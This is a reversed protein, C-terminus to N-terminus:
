CGPLAEEKMDAIIKELQKRKEARLDLINRPMPQLSGHLEVLHFFEQKTLSKKEVLTDVVADMLERNQQLIQM